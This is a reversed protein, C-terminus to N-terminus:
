QDQKEKKLQVFDIENSKWTEMKLLYLFVSLLYKQFLHIVTGEPNRRYISCLPLRTLDTKHFCVCATLHLTIALGIPNRCNECLALCLAKKQLCIFYFINYDLSLYVNPKLNTFHPEKLFCVKSKQALMVMKNLSVPKGTFGIGTFWLRFCVRALM